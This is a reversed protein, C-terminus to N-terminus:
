EGPDPALAGARAPARHEHAARALRLAQRWVCRRRPHKDYGRRDMRRGGGPLGTRGAFTGADTSEALEVGRVPRSSLFAAAWARPCIRWVGPLTRHHRQDGAVGGGRLWGDPTDQDSSDPQEGPVRRHWAGRLLRARVAASRRKRPLTGGAPRAARAQRAAADGHRDHHPVQDARPCVHLVARSPPPQM